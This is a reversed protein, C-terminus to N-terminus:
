FKLNVKDIWNLTYALTLGYVSASILHSFVTAFTHTELFPLRVAISISYLAFWGFIGFILGKLLYNGSILKLLILSLIIGLFGAFFIQGVQAFIVEPITNPLRGYIAVAAWDLFREAHIGLLFGLWDTINMAIGAIVGSIFGAMFRDKM